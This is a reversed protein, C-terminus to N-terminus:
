CNLPILLPERASAQRCEPYKLRAYRLSNRAKEKMKHKKWKKKECWLTCHMTKSQTKPITMKKGKMRKIERKSQLIKETTHRDGYERERM